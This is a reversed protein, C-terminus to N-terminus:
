LVAAFLDFNIEIEEKIVILGLLKKPPQLGFDRIDLKLKGIFRNAPGAIIEVPVLYVKDKGAIIIKVFANGRNVNYLNIETLELTIKPYEKTQLLSNFDKNIAKNGCDFGENRLSLVANKFNITNGNRHYVVNKCQELYFTNFNCGFKSINTDGTISLESNQLIEISKSDFGNQTWGKLSFLFVLCHLIFRNM